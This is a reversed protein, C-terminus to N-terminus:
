IPLTSNSARRAGHPAGGRRGPSPRRHAAPRAGHAWRGNGDMIIAVHRPAEGAMPDIEMPERRGLETGFGHDCRCSRAEKHQLAEDIDKIIADTM